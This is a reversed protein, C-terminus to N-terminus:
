PHLYKVMSLSPRGVERLKIIPAIIIPATTNAPNITVAIRTPEKIYDCHWSIEQM